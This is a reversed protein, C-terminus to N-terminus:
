QKPATQTGQTTRPTAIIQMIGLDGSVKRGVALEVTLLQTLKEKSNQYVVRMPLMIKWQNEKIPTIQTTGDLQSSVNLNQTKIANMNGSKQLADQFSQWGQDTFCTKLKELQPELTVPNFDFAQIAAKEAWKSVLSQDVQTNEPPIHYQCDIVAPISQPTAASTPSPQPTQQVPVTTTAPNPSPQVTHPAPTTVAPQTSAPTAQPDEAYAASSLLAVM